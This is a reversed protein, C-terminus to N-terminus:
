NCPYKNKCGQIYIAPFRTSVFAVGLRTAYQRLFCLRKGLIMNWAGRPALSLSM